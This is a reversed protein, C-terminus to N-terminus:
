ADADSQRNERSHRDNGDACSRREIERQRNEAYGELFPKVVSYSLPSRARSHAWALPAPIAPGRWRAHLPTRPAFGRPTIMVDDVGSACRLGPVRPRTALMM